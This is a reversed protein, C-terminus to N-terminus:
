IFGTSAYVEDSASTPSIFETRLLSYVFSHRCVVTNVPMVTSVLWQLDFMCKSASAM